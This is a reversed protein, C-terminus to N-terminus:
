IKASLNYLKYFNLNTYIYRGKSDKIWILYDIKNLLEKIYKDYEYSKTLWISFLNDEIHIIEVEYFKNLLPIYLDITSNENININEYILNIDDITSINLIKTFEKGKVNEIDLLDNFKNNVGIINLKNNVLEGWLCFVPSKKLVNIYNDINM